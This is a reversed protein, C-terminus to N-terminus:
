RVDGVFLLLGNHKFSLRLAEKCQGKGIGTLTKAVIGHEGDEHQEELGLKAPVLGYGALDVGDEQGEHVEHGDHATDQGVLNTVALTDDGTDADHEGTVQGKGDGGSGVGHADREHQAGEEHNGHTGAQELAVQLHQHAVEVVVGLVAGLTVAGERQEVHGDVDAGHECRRSGGGDGVAEHALGAEDVLGGDGGECVLRQVATDGCVVDGTQGFELGLHGIGGHRGHIGSGEAGVVDLVQRRGVVHAEGHGAYGENDGDEDVEGAAAPELMGIDVGLLSSGAIGGHHLEAGLLGAVADRGEDHHEGHDDEEPHGEVLVSLGEGPEGTVVGQRVSGTGGAQAEVDPHQGEDGHADIGQEGGELALGELAFEDAAKDGGAEPAAGVPQVGAHRIRKGDLGLQELLEVGEVHDEERGDGHGDEAAQGALALLRGSGHFDAQAHEHGCQAVKDHHHTGEALRGRSGQM